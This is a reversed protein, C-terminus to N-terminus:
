LKLKGPRQYNNWFTLLDIRNGTITYYLSIQKVVICKHIHKKKNIVPHLEPHALILAIAEETKNIFRDVVEISWNEILYDINNNFTLEAEETWFVKLSM